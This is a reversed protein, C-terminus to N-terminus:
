VPTLRPTLGHNGMGSGPRVGPEEAVRSCVRHLSRLAHIGETDLLGVAADQEAGLLVDDADHLADRATSADASEVIRQRIIQLKALEDAVVRRRRQVRDDRQYRSVFQGLAFLGAIASAM